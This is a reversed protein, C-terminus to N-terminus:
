VAPTLPPIDSSSSNKNCYEFNRFKSRSGISNDSGHLCKEFDLLQGMFNFNPSINPKCSKVFDYAENMTLNLKSMLYAVTVTVSRSIGALCHVLVGCHNERAEDIFAIAEPFFEFLDQSLHDSINIRLYKFSDDNAFMNPVNPTVNLIYCIGNQKLQQLDASNKANGLYLYPLVQVPFPSQLSPTGDNESDSSTGYASDESIRLNSLGNLSNETSDLSVCHEPFRQVFTTFGGLLFTARCGDQRLKKVLLHLISSPNANLDTSCEDYLIILHTKCQKNFREKDVNNHIIASMNLIGKRLRKVLLGPLTVNISNVVHSRSYESQSRCDVLLLKEGNEIDRHLRDPCCYDGNTDSTM